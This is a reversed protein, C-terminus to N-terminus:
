LWAVSATVQRIVFFWRCPSLSVSCCPWPRKHMVWHKHCVPTASKEDGVFDEALMKTSGVVKCAGPDVWFLALHVPTHANMDVTADKMSFETSPFSPNVTPGVVQTAARLTSSEFGGDLSTPVYLGVFYLGHKLVKDVGIGICHILLEVTVNLRVDPPAPAFTTVALSGTKVGLQDGLPTLSLSIEFPEADEKHTSTGSQFFHDMLQTPTTYARGLLQRGGDLAISTANGRRSKGMDEYVCMMLPVNWNSGDCLLSSHITMERMRTVGMPPVETMLVPIFEDIGTVDNHNYRFIVVFLCSTSLATGELALELKLTIGIKLTMHNRLLPVGHVGQLSTSVFPEISYPASKGGGYVMANQHKTLVSDVFSTRDIVIAVSPVENGLAAGAARSM